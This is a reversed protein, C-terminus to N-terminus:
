CTIITAGGGGGGTHGISSFLPSNVRDFLKSITKSKISGSNPISEWILDTGCEGQGGESLLKFGIQVGFCAWRPRYMEQLERHHKVGGGGRRDRSESIQNVANKPNHQM